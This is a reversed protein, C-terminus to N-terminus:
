WTVWCGPPAIGFANRKGRLLLRGVPPPRVPHLPVGVGPRAVVVVTLHGALAVGAGRGGPDRMEEPARVLAQGFRRGGPLVVEDAVELAAVGVHRHEVLHARRQAVDLAVRFPAEDALARDPLTAAHRQPLLQEASRASSPCLVEGRVMASPSAEIPRSSPFTANIVPAWCPIPRPM